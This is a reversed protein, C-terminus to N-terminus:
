SSLASHWGIRVIEQSSMHEWDIRDLHEGQQAWAEARREAEQRERLRAIQIWFPVVNQELPSSTSTQLEDAAVTTNTTSHRCIPCTAKEELWQAVCLAHFTHMCALATTTETAKVDELCIACQVSEQATEAKQEIKQEMGQLTIGAVSVILAIIAKQISFNM